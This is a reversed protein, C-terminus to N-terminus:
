RNSKPGVAGLGCDYIWYSGIESIYRTLGGLRFVSILIQISGVMAGILFMAEAAEVKQEPDFFSLAGFVV